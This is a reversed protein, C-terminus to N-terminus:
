YAPVAVNSSGAFRDVMHDISANRFRDPMHNLLPRATLDALRRRLRLQDEKSLRPMTLRAAVRSSPSTFAPPVAVEARFNVPERKEAKVVPHEKRKQNLRIQQQIFGYFWYCHLPFFICLAVTASTTISACQYTAVIMYAHFLIRTSVFFFAFTYDHRLKSDISGLALLFTPAELSCMTIFISALRYKLVWALTFMYTTHHIWGTLPDIRKRYFAVGIALDLFLFTAFFTSLVVTWWREAIISELDWGNQIIERILPISGLTTALSSLLSLVYARQKDTTAWGKAHWVTYWAVLVGTSVFATGLVLPRLLAESYSDFPPLKTDM